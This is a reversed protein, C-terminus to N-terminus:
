KKSPPSGDDTGVEGKETKVPAKKEEKKENKKDEIKTEDQKGSSQSENNKIMEEISTGSELSQLMVKASESLKENPDADTPYKALFSKYAKISNDKDKLAEDYIFAILFMSQKADKTTPFKDVIEQYVKIAETYNDLNENYIKAIQTYAPLVKESKPYNKIFDKYTNISETFLYNDKKVVASDYQAKATALYEEETKQRQSCSVLLIAFLTLFLIKFKLHLM